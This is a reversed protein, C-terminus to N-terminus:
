KGKCPEVRIALILTESKKRKYPTVIPLYKGCV